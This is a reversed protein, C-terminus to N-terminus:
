PTKPCNRSFLPIKARHESLGDKGNGDFSGEKVSEAWQRRVTAVFKHFPMHRNSTRLSIVVRCAHESRLRIIPKSRRSLKWLPGTWCRMKGTWSIRDVEQREAMGIVSIWMVQSPVTAPASIKSITSM